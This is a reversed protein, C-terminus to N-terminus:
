SYLTAIYILFSGFLKLFTILVIPFLLKVSIFGFVLYLFLTVFKSQVLAM